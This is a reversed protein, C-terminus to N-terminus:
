SYKYTKISCRSTDLRLAKLDLLLMETCPASLHWAELCYSELGPLELWASNVM